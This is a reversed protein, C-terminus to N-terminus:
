VRADFTYRTPVDIDPPQQGRTDPKQGSNDFPTAVDFKEDIAKTRLQTLTFGANQLLDSLDKANLSVSTLTNDKDSRVQLSVNSGTKNVLVEVRGLFAMDLGILAAANYGSAKKNREGKKKFVHLEATKQEEGAAFPLQFYMKTETINRSFDIIDAINEAAAALPANGTEQALKIIEQSIGRLNALVENANPANSANPADSALQLSQLQNKLGELAQAQEPSSPVINEFAALTNAIEKTLNMDGTQLGKFIEVSKETAAFNNELLFQIHEFPANPMSYRFFAARQLNSQDIPMNRIVLDEVVAANSPTLQM